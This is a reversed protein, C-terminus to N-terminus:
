ELLYGALIQNSIFGVPLKAGVPSEFQYRFIVQGARIGAFFGISEQYRWFLGMQYDKNVTCVLHAQPKLGTFSSYKLLFSPELMLNNGLGFNYGAYTYFARQLWSNQLPVEQTDFSFDGFGVISNFMQVVSLGATLHEGMFHVGANADLFHLVENGTNDLIPDPNTGDPPVFKSKNIIFQHYMPALGFSLRGQELYVHYAYDLFVGVQSVPGASLNFAGGGLGVKGFANEGRNLFGRPNFRQRRALMTKHFSITEYVPAGNMGLWQQRASLALPSYRSTGAIAPNTLFPNILYQDSLPSIQGIGKISLAILFFWILVFRKNM